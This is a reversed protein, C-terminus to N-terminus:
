IVSEWDSSSMFGSPPQSHWIVNILLCWSRKIMRLYVTWFYFKLTELCIFEWTYIPFFRFKKVILVNSSDFSVKEYFQPRIVKLDEQMGHTQCNTWLMNMIPSHNTFSLHIIPLHYTFSLHIIPSHMRVSSLVNKDFAFLFFFSYAFLKITAYWDWDPRICDALCYRISAKRSCAYSIGQNLSM